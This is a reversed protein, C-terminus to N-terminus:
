GLGIIPPTLLGAEVVDLLVPVFENDTLPSVCADYRESGRSPPSVSSQLLKMDKAENSEKM